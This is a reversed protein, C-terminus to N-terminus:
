RPTRQPAAIAHDEVPRAAAIRVLTEVFARVRATCGDRRWILGYELPPGDSFPVFILGPRAHYRAARLAAPSAGLGSAVLSLVEIWYTATLGHTIPRGQPTTRPYINDRWYQPSSGSMVILPIRALDETCVSGRRAFPHSEAVLLARPESFIVPGAVLDPEDVPFETLQLSLAGARLPGLTDTLQVEQTEVACDPYARRFEEGTNLVIDHAWQSSFGVRLTGVVGKGVAKARAVGELIQRYAPALDDHLRRGTATLEVRRSTRDFLPVGLRRELKKIIQSVRGQALGLRETARGFHLDEALVLFAEIEHREM